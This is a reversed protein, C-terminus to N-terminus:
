FRLDSGGPEGGFVFIQVERNEEVLNCIFRKVFYSKGSGTTGVVLMHKSIVERGDLFVEIDTDELVGVRVPLKMREGSSTKRLVEKLTDGSVRYIAEGVDFPKRLIDLRGERVV